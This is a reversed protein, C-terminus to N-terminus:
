LDYVCLTLLGWGCAEDVGLGVITEPALVALGAGARRAYAGVDVAVPRVLPLEGAAGRGVLAALGVLAERGAVGGLVLSEDGEGLSELVALTDLEVDVPVAEALVDEERVSKVAGSACAVVRALRGEGLAQGVFDGLAVVGLEGVSRRARSQVLGGAAASVVEGIYGLSLQRPGNLQPGGTRGAASEDQSSRLNQGAGNLLPLAHLVQKSGHLHNCQHLFTGLLYSQLHSYNYM